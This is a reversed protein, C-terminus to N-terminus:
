PNDRGFARVIRNKGVVDDLSYTRGEEMDRVSRRISARFGPISLLQATETQSERKEKFNVM